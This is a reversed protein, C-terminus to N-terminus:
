LVLRMVIADERKNDGAPYYARRVGIGAFGYREYVMVAQDNSPRVELLVSQMKHARAVEVMHDLMRRGFGRGQLEPRVTINLLHAEDVSLMLLYYGVLLGSPLRVASMEYGSYLSDLFNGHTWPFPYAVSEIAMVEDLDEVQM